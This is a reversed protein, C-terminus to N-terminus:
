GKRSRGTRIWRKAPTLFAPLWFPSNIKLTLFTKKQTQEIKIIETLEVCFSLFVPLPSRDIIASFDNWNKFQWFINRMKKEEMEIKEIWFKQSFSFSFFSSQILKRLSFNGSFTKKQLNKRIGVKKCILWTLLTIKM